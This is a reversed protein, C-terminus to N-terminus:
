QRVLKSNIYHLLTRAANIALVAEAEDLIDENAHAISTRNRWTNLQEIILAMARLVRSVEETRSSFKM